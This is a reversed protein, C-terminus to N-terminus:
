WILNMTYKKHETILHDLLKNGNNFYVKAEDFGDDFGEHGRTASVDTLWQQVQIVNIKLNLFSFAHPLVEEEKEFIKIRMDDLKIYNTVVNLSMVSFLILSISMFLQKVSMDKLM